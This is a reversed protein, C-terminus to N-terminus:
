ILEDPLFIYIKYLRFYDNKCILYCLVLRILTLGNCQVLLPIYIYDHVFCLLWFTVKTKLTYM